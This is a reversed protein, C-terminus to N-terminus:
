FKITAKVGAVQSNTDKSFRGQYLFRATWNRDSLIDVGAALDAYVSDSSNVLTVTPTFPAFGATITSDAGSYFSMGVRAFPHGVIGDVIPMETGIELMPSAHFIFDNGGAVILDLPGAGTETFGNRHLWTGGLELSPRIYGRALPIGRSLKGSLSAFYLMQQSTASVGPVPIFRTADAEEGGGSLAVALDYNAFKNKAVIGANFLNRDATTTGSSYNGNEYGLGFGVRWAGEMAWQMGASVSSASDSYGYTGAGADGRTTRYQAAGWVCEGEGLLGNSNGLTPCSFLNGTFAQNSALSANSLAAFGEPGLAAIAEGYGTTTPIGALDLFTTQLGVPVGGMFFGQLYNGMLVQNGELGKAAFNLGVSVDVTTATTSVDVQVAGQAAGTIGNNVVTAANVITATQSAGYILNLDHVDARAFGGMQATGVGVIHDSVAPTDFDIDFSVEGPTKQVLNGGNFNTTLYPGVGGPSLTGFNTVANGVGVDVNAGSEFVGGAQNNFANAGTGLYVSGKVLGYNEIDDDGGIGGIARGGNAENIQGWNTLTNTGLKFFVGYSFNGSANNSGGTVVGDSLIKVLSKGGFADVEIGNTQKTPDSGNSQVTGGGYTLDITGNANGAIARSVLIGRWASSTVDGTVNAKINAGSAFVGEFASTVNGIQNLDVTGGTSEAFIGRFSDSTLNGNSSIHLDGASRAFVAEFSGSPDHTVIDGVSNITVPGDTSEAFLGRGRQSTLDGVSMLDIGTKGRVFLADLGSSTTESKVNGTTNLTVFGTLSEVSLARQDHSTLNGVTVVNVDGEGKAFIAEQPASIDGKSDLNTPGHQSNAFIGRGSFSDSVTINGRSTVSVGTPGQAFIGDLRSNIDGISQVIVNNNLSNAFIGRTDGSTGAVDIKGQSLVTVTLMGQAFIGTNGSTSVSGATIAGVSNVYTAGSQSNAFIGRQLTSVLDGRSIVTVDSAGQAFIAEQNASVKGTSMVYVKSTDGSGSIDADAYIGKSSSSTVDGESTVTVNNRGQAFIGEDQANVSGKSSVFVSGEPSEAYFGKLFNSVINGESVVSVDGRGQAFIAEDHATVNGKSTIDVGNNYSFGYIGKLNASTVNGVNGITIQGPGQAFIGEYGVNITGTSNVTVAGNLSEAYFGRLGPATVDGFSDIRVIGPAKVFFGDAGGTTTVTAHSLVTADTDGQFLVGDKGSPPAIPGLLSQITLNTTSSPFDTGSAVGNTQNGTCM